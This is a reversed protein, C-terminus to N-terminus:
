GSREVALGFLPRLRTGFISGVFAAALWLWGHLSGSAIGSFYAGINCGYALRAGYGLLLGGIVAALLSRAPIRWTPAFKGAIGAATLAGLVIGFDMVSTVDRFISQHLAASRAPNQWYGWSAVDAGALEFIKSGWLAFASTVGWPRGALYLTAFNGLALAVAGAVLPWPGHLARRWGRRKPVGGVLLTGHRRKEIVMTATWIGGFAALSIALAPGWGLTEILSISGINPQESWWPLHMAGVASGIIFFFLTVFMRTNGGGASYLTGSACGGGLQMGIGFLFAGVLVSVGLAGYEGHVSQGFLSGHALAPFFLVVAVALMLMQARLGAGRGDAIFVRWASTFGFLAHYLVLGLFGGLVFLAGLRWSYAEALAIAGSALAALGVMVVIRNASNPELTQSHHPALLRADVSLDTM